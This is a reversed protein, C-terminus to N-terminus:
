KYLDDKRKQEEDILYQLDIISCELENKKSKIKSYWKNCNQALLHINFYVMIFCLLALVWGFLPAKSLYLGAFVPAFVWLYLFIYLIATKINYLLLKIRYKFLKKKLM